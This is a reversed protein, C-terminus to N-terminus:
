GSAANGGAAKSRGLQVLILVTALVCAWGLLDGTRSYPTALPQGLPLTALLTVGPMAASRREAVIRGHADSVSLMGERSARVVAFGNEIGRVVTAHQAWWADRQFDWAPVLVAGVGRAGYARAFAAFHMDKCIALAVSQDDIRQTVFADGPIDSREPPALYHKHFRAARRGQPVFLWALNRRGDASDVAVGLELWVGHQRAVAGFHREWEEAQAVSLVAIKEPLVVVSARAAALAAIHADYQQRIPRAYQDTAERGIADDIAALGFTVPRGILPTQLRWAGYSVVGGILLVTTVVVPVTRAPRLAPGLLLALTANGLMLVFLLGGVGAVATIQALPLVAAQTYAYSLVNGDPLLAAMLTDAAVWVVPFTLVAWGTQWRGLARLTVVASFRWLLALAVVILVAIPLPMLSRLYPLNVSTGILSALLTYWRAENAPTRMILVLLAAPACWALWWVPTLTLTAALAAGVAVAALVRLARLRSISMPM